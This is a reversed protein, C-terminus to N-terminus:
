IAKFVVNKDVYNDGVKKPGDKLVKTFSRVNLNM